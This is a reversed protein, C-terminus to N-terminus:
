RTKFEKLAVYDLSIGYELFQPRLKTVIQDQIQLRTSRAEALTRSELLAIVTAEAIPYLASQATERSGAKVVVRAANEEAVSTTVTFEVTAVSGDAFVVRPAVGDPLENAARLESRASDSRSRTSNSATDQPPRRVLTAIRDLNAVVGAVVALIAVGSAIFARTRNLAARVHEVPARRGSVPRGDADVLGTNPSESNKM